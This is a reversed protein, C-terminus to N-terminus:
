ATRLQSGGKLYKTKPLGSYFALIFLIQELTQRSLNGAALLYAGPFLEQIRNDLYWEIQDLASQPSQLLSM